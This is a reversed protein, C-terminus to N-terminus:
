TTAEQRKRAARTARAAAVRKRVSVPRQKKGVIAATAKAINKRSVELYRERSAPESYRRRNAASHSARAEPTKQGARVAALMTDRTEPDQWYAKRIDSCLKRFETSGNVARISASRKAKKAPDSWERRNQESLKEREGPRSWRRRNHAAQRAKAAPTAREVNIGAIRKERVGPRTWSWAIGCPRSCCKRKSKPAREFEVYCNKCALGAFTPAALHLVRKRRVLVAREGDNLSQAARRISSADAGLCASIANLPVPQSTLVDIIEDALTKM